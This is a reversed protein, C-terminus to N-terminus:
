ITSNGNALIDRLSSGLSKSSQSRASRQGFYGSHKHEDPRKTDKLEMKNVLIKPSQIIKDADDPTGELIKQDSKSLSNRGGAKDPVEHAQLTFEKSKDAAFRNKHFHNNFGGTSSLRSKMNRAGMLPYTIAKRATMKSQRKRKTVKRDIHALDLNKTGQKNNLRAPSKSVNSATKNGFRTPSSLSQNQNELTSNQAQTKICSRSTTSRNRHFARPPSIVQQQASLSEHM